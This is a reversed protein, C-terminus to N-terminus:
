FRTSKKQCRYFILHILILNLDTDNRPIKNVNTFTELNLEAFPGCHLDFGCQLRMLLHRYVFKNQKSMRYWPIDHFKDLLMENQPPLPPSPFFFSFIDRM